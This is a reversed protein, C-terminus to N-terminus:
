VADSTFLSFFVLLLFCHLSKGSPIAEALQPTPPPMDWGPPPGNDDEDDDDQKDFM